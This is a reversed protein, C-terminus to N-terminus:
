VEADTTAIVLEGSDIAKRIYRMLTIPKPYETDDTNEKIYNAIFNAAMEDCGRCDGVVFECDDYNNNCTDIVDVIAPVYFKEFEEPTIDRHGSIFYTM